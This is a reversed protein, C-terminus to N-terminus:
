WESYPYQREVEHFYEVAAVWDHHDLRDAGTNYILDVPRQQTAIVPKNPHGICATLAVACVGALALVKSTRRIQSFVSSPRSMPLTRSMTRIAEPRGGPAHAPEVGAPAARLRPRRDRHAGSRRPPVAVPASAPAGMSRRAKWAFYEGSLLLMRRSPSTTQRSRNWLFYKFHPLNFSIIFRISPPPDIFARKATPRICIAQAPIASAPAKAHPEAALAVWTYMESPCIFWGSM